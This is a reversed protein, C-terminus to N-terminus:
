PPWFPFCCLYDQFRISYELRIGVGQFTRAGNFITLHRGQWLMCLEVYLVHLIKPQIRYIPLFLNYIQDLSQLCFVM